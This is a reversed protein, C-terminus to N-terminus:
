DRRPGVHRRVPRRHLVAHAPRRHGGARRRDRETRRDPVAAAAEARGVGIDSYTIVYM